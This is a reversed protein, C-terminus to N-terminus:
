KSPLSTIFTFHYVPPLGNPSEDRAVGVSYHSYHFGVAFRSRYTHRSTIDARALGLRADWRGMHASTYAYHEASIGPADSYSYGARWQASDTGAIRADFAGAFAPGDGSHTGPRWLFSTLGLRGDVHLLREMVVGADIGVATRRDTDVQGIQYRLAVGTTVNPASRRTAVASLVTEDYPVDGGVAQPDSDTRVIGDASVRAITIAGTVDNPIAVAVSLVQGAVSQELGTTLSSIAARGRLGPALAASAPNRFGDGTALALASPEALSGLPLEFLDRGPIQQAGSPSAILMLLWLCFGKGNMSKVKRVEGIETLRTAVRREREEKSQSRM